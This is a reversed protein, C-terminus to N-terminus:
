RNARLQSPGAEDIDMDKLEPAALFAILSIV